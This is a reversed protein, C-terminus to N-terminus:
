LFVITYVMEVNGVFDEREMKLKPISGVFPSNRLVSSSTPAYKGRKVDHLAARRGLAVSALLTQASMRISTAFLASVATGQDSTVSSAM